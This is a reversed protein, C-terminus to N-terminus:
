RKKGFLDKWGRFMKQKEKTDPEPEHLPASSISEILSPIHHYCPKKLLIITNDDRTYNPNYQLVFQFECIIAYNQIDLIFYEIQDSICRKEDLAAKGKPCAIVIKINPIKRFLINIVNSLDHLASKRTLSNFRDTPLFFINSFTTCDTYSYTLIHSEKRIETM